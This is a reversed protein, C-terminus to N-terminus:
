LIDLEYLVLDGQPNARRGTLRMGVKKLVHQSAVNENLACAGLRTLGMGTAWEVVARAAETAFGQGWADRVFAYALETERDVDDPRLGCRGIFTHDIRREVRFTRHWPREITSLASVLWDSSEDRTRGKAIGSSGVMVEPDAHMEALDDLDQLQIPM